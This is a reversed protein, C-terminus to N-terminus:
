SNHGHKQLHKRFRWEIYPINLSQLLQFLEKVINNQFEGMDLPEVIKAPSSIEPRNLGPPAGYGSFDTKLPNQQAALLDKTTVQPMESTNTRALCQKYMEFTIKTPDKAEPFSRKIAAIVLADTKSDLNVVYDGVRKDVRKQAQDALKEIAKYSTKLDGVAKRADELTSIQDDLPEDSYIDVEPEEYDIDPRFTLIDREQTFDDAM